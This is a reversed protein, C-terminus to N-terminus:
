RATTLSYRFYSCFLIHFIIKMESAHWRSVIKSRLQPMTIEMITVPENEITSTSITQPANPIILTEDM